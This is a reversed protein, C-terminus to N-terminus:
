LIKALQAVVFDGYESDKISFEGKGSVPDINLFVEGEDNGLFVKMLIWDGRPTDAFSGNSSRSQNTGLEVFEFPLRAVKQVKAPLTKAELAEVLETLFVSPDSGSEPLFAGKGFSLRMKLIEGGTTKAETPMAPGLEIRFRATKGGSNHIAIWSRVNKDGSPHLDFAVTGEALAQQSDSSPSVITPSRACGAILGLLVAFSLLLYSLKM